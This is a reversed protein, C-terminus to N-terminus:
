RFLRSLAAGCGVCARWVLGARTTIRAADVVKPM